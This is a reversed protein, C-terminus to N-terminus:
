KGGCTANTPYNCVNLESDFWLGEPCTMEVPRSHVCVYFKTCDVPSPLYTIEDSDTEDPCSIRDQDASIEGMTFLLFSFNYIITAKM